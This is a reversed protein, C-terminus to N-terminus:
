RVIVFPINLIEGNIRAILYYTGASLDSAPLGIQYSGPLYDGSTVSNIQKGTM